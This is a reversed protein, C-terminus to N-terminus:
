AHVGFLPNFHAVFVLLAMVPAAALTSDIRDLVGGHGPIIAGSNKVGFRRKVFSEFLDGAHATFSFVFGFALATLTSGGLLTSLYFTFVLAALVSGGITGSWTKAPSLKPALRKGGILNGFILAGTDTAWVILFLGILILGHSVSSLAVLCLAPVGLYPAGVAQWLPHKDDRLLALVFSAAAGFAVVLLGAWFYGTYLFSAEAIAVSAATLVVGARDAVGGGVCRHWELAALVFSVAVFIAVTKPGYIVVSLALLGLVIGFLPRTIWDMNFRIARFGPANDDSPTTHQSSV